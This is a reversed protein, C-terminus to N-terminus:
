WGKPLMDWLDDDDQKNDQRTETPKAPEVPKDAPAAQTSQEPKQATPQTQTGSQDAPKPEQPQQQPWMPTFPPQAAPATNAPPIVQNSGMPNGLRDMTGFQGAPAPNNTPANPMSVQGTPAPGVPTNSPVQFAGTPQNDNIIRFPATQAEPPQQQPQGQMPAARFDDTGTAALPEAAAISESELGEDWFTTKKSGSSSERIFGIKKQKNKADNTLKPTFQNVIEMVEDGLLEDREQLEAALAHVMDSNADLLQKVKKMQDQLYNEVETQMSAGAIGLVSRSSLHGNLGIDGIIHVAYATANNLDGYFGTSGSGLFLEESARSALSVQIKVEIEEKLQVHKEELPKPQMFGLAGGHRIITLKVLREWPVLLIQAIAHGTEHYALRRKEERSLNSIPQRLGVEHLDRAELIDRYTIADRGNFHARVVAENIVYRIAVPTYGITEAIMREVPINEHNVKDLYYEIIDRRGDSDPKDVTIKRDFRGPRLLADDLTDVLNTAAITLVAPRDAKKRRFDLGLWRILKTTWRDDVPPPDLQVLLENILLNGGGGFMGGAGMGIGAMGGTPGNRKQGIADIEDLFLICAGYQGSLKRAKRYLARISLMGGALFPSQLSPASCYGFPVGAETAIAQALYSKGVGPDGELLLGRIVEGGMNTFDKSGKLLLVVERAMELVQPNGRYDKFSIGTEYPKLWYTRPRSIAFFQIYIFLIATFASVGLQIVLTIIQNAVGAPGSSSFSPGFFSFIAFIIFFVLLYRWWGWRIPNYKWRHKLKEIALDVDDQQQIPRRKSRVNEM